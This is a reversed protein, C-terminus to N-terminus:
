SAARLREFADLLVTATFEFEADEDCAGDPDRDSADLAIAVIFPFRERMYALIEPDAADRAAPADPDAFVERAYGWIREGLAHMADHALRPSCGGAIFEGAVANMHSMVAETRRTRTEIADGLWPHQLYTARATQLRALVRARWPGGPAPTQYEDILTDVMQTLLDDKDSVHKYLAMPVVGLHTALSRMSVADLGGADALAIAEAVVRTRDLRPRPVPDAPM